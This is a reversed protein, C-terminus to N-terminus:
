KQNKLYDEQQQNLLEMADMGSKGDDVGSVADMEEKNDVYRVNDKRNKEDTPTMEINSVEKGSISKNM